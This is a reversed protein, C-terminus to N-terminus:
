YLKTKLNKFFYDYFCFDLETSYGDRLFELNAKKITYDKKDIFFALDRKLEKIYAIKEQKKRLFIKKRNNTKYRIRLDESNFCSFINIRIRKCQKLFQKEKLVCKNTIKLIYPKKIFILKEKLIEDIIKKKYLNINNKFESIKSKDLLLNNKNFNLITRMLDLNKCLIKNFYKETNKIKFKKNYEKELKTFELLTIDKKCAYFELYKKFNEFAITYFCLFEKKDKIGQSVLIDAFNRFEIYINEIEKDM